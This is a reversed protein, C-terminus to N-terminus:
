IGLIGQAKTTMNTVLTEIFTTLSDKMVVCLVLAIISLGVTVLMGDIGRSKKRAFGKVAAEARQKMSMIRYM